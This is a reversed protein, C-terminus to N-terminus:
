VWKKWSTGDYVYASGTVWQSGNYARVTPFSWQAGNWVGGLTAPTQISNSQVNVTQAQSDLSDFNSASGDWRYVTSPSLGTVTVAGNLDTSSIGTGTISVSDANSSNWSVSATTSTLATATISLTPASRRTRTVVSDTVDAFNTKKILLTYTYQTDPVRGADLFEFNNLSTSLLTGDRRVEVSTPNETTFWGITISNSARSVVSIAGDPPNEPPPPPVAAPELPVSISTSASGILNGMNVSISFTRSGSGRPGSRVGGSFSYDRNQNPSRYDYTFSQQSNTTGSVYTTNPSTNDYTGTGFPERTNNTTTIRFSWAFRTTDGSVTTEVRYRLVHQSRLSFPQSSTYVAM